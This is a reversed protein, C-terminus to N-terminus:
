SPRKKSGGKRNILDFYQDIRDKHVQVGDIEIYGPLITHSGDHNKGLNIDKRDGKIREMRIM